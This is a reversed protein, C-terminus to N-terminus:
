PWQKDGVSNLYNNSGQWSFSSDTDGDEPKKDNYHSSRNEKAFSRPRGEILSHSLRSADFHFGSNSPKRVERLYKFTHSDPGEDPKPSYLWEGNSVNSIATLLFDKDKAQLVLMHRLLQVMSRQALALARMYYVSVCLFLMVFGIVGPRVIFGLVARLGPRQQLRLVGESVVGYVYSYGRFPGCAHSSTRFFLSGIGFLTTFLSLTVFMYLVTQTQAARWVKRAPQCARLACERKIYFLLLLKLTVAVALLPSFVMGFWLVAQNYILTLSNYAINFEPASESKSWNYILGRTFEIFPLVFLSVVSDLLVLRYAEQGFSTEWCQGAHAQSWYVLLLMLTGVDLLWTRALTVYLATRPTYFELKVLVHLMLPCVTVCVTVIVSVCLEWHQVGSRWGLLLWLGWEILGILALVFVSIIVNTAYQGLKTLWSTATQKRNQESLLEKFENYLSNANLKAAEPTVVGFDWGCFVKNAFVHSLGGSTEIFNLRYSYATRYCLVAFFMLYLCVMTFFYAFAMNYTMSSQTSIPGDHYHGYFLLSDTLGGKGTFFDLFTLQVRDPRTEDHLAQPIVVFAVVLTALLLDLAFLWRLFYFYSGVASGFHGEIQRIPEYWFEFSFVVDRCRDKLRKWAFGIRYKMRKWMSIPRRKSRLSVSASLKARVNRKMTLGQPLDRLAERRLEEAVPDDEMLRQHQEMERVIIDAQKDASDPADAEAADVEELLANHESTNRRLRLTNYPLQRSPMFNVAVQRAANNRLTLNRRASQPRAEIEEIEDEM